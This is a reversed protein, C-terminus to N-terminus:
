DASEDGLLGLQELAAALQGRVEVVTSGDPDQGTVQEAHLQPTLHFVDPSVPGPSEPYEKAAVGVMWNLAQVVPPGVVLHVLLLHRNPVAVLAGAQPIHAGVRALLDPLVLLRSAGFFDESIFVHIDGGPEDGVVQHEPLPLARLNDRALGWADPVDVRSPDFFEMVLDPRDEALLALVGPLPQVTAERRAAEPLDSVRRLKALLHRPDIVGDEGAQQRQWHGMLLDLHQDVLAPWEAYPLGSAHVGLNHLGLQEGGALRLVGHDVLAESGRVALKERVIRGLERAQDVSLMSLDDDRPGDADPEYTKKRRRFIGM